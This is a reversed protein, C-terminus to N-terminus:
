VKMIEAEKDRSLSDLIGIYQDTTKQADDQQRKSDDETIAKNKEKAKIEDVYDRRINRIGVKAEEVAKKVQKVLDKRRDETLEPLRLRIMMGDTQPSLGLDSTMIAREVEKVAGKDFVNILLVRSEPVSVAGVQKLPVTSGYYNVMLKSLLEPNARGTRFGNLQSKLSEVTKEMRSKLESM